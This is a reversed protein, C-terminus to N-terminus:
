ILQDPKTKNCLNLNFRNFRLCIETEALQQGAPLQVELLGKPKYAECSSSFLKERLNEFSPNSNELGVM